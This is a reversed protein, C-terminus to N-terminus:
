AEVEENRKCIYAAQEQAEEEYKTLPFNKKKLLVIQVILQVTRFICYIDLVCSQKEVYMKALQTRVPVINQKYFDSDTVFLDGHTYDYLSDLCALGPRVTLVSSADGTYLRNVVKQPYPRPGVFSMHGLFVNVLQPLEDLKSKRLFSGFAFIRDNNVLCGKEVVGEEKVHMSRFKYMTFLKGNLGVRESVYLVPGKSSLKIGVVIILLIPALILIAMASVIIDFLRKVVKYM